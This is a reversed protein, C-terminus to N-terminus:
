HDHFDDDENVGPQRGQCTFHVAFLLRKELSASSRMRGGQGSGNASPSLYEGGCPRRPPETNFVPLVGGDFFAGHFCFEIAQDSNEQQAAQTDAAGCGIVSIAVWTRDHVRTGCGKTCHGGTHDSVADGVAPVIVTVM